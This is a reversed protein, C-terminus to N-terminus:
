LLFMTAFGLFVFFGIIDTFATLLVSSAIAPDVGVKSLGLPVLAGSLAAVIMNLVIAAGIVFALGIDQQWFYTLLAGLIALVVGNTFGVAFEKRIFRWANAPGLERTALARVAVTLTQSGANGGMSAVIPMLAALIVISEITADFLKIVLAAVIATGMNLCLWRIRAKATAMVKAYLDEDHVGGLAMFDAEHEEEIVDVVDDVTIEGIMRGDKDVVPASILDKQKFLFAVEEQHTEGEILTIDDNKIDRLDVNRKTQLLTSLKVQGIPKHRPDVLYINFFDDPLSKEDKESMMRFWDIADGVTLYSPMAVFAQHMLRGASDEPWSFNERVAQQDDRDLAQIIAERDSDDDVDELLAVADDVDLGKVVDSLDQVDLSETLETRIAEDLESWFDYQENETLFQALAIRQEITKLDQILDAQASYHYSDVIPQLAEWDDEDIKEEVQHILSATVQWEEGTHNLNFLNKETNEQIENM